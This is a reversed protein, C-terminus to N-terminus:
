GFGAVRRIERTIPRVAKYTEMACFSLSPFLFNETMCLYNKVIRAYRSHILFM